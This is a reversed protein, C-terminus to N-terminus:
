TTTRASFRPISGVRKVLIVSWSNVSMCKAEGDLDSHHLVRLIGYGMLDQIVFYIRKGDSSVVMDGPRFEFRRKLCSM